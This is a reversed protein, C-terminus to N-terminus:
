KKVIYFIQNEKIKPEVSVAIDKKDTVKLETYPENNLQITLITKKYFNGETTEVILIDGVKVTYNEIKFALIKNNFIQIIEEIKQYKYISEKKIYEESLIEFIAQCYNELFQISLELESISLIDDLESGHAIQNRREVLDNIKNYLNDSDINSINSIEENNKFHEVLTKNNKIKDNLNINVLEFIKVIQKHKLNGSLIVFAETSFKYNSPNVICENLKKIVEEKKIHKYKLSERSTINNILKLSLEFHNIRIKEDIDNYNTILDALSDLYEKIWIEIYKELLGYLSIISAKYEFRSKDIRFNKHHDKLNNLSIKIMENETSSVDSRLIDDVYQIHKFYERVQNIEKKFRELSEINM